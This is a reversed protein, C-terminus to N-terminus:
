FEWRNFARLGVYMVWVNTAVALILGGITGGVLWLRFWGQLRLSEAMWPHPSFQSFTRAAQDAAVLFHFPLAMLALVVVIYLTSLVLNLTGGFGAAIRASSEERFDPFRAGLGVAIGALGVCLVLCSLQHTLVISRPVRLAFDSVLILACCPAIAGAAAFLFKSWLITHRRLPLMGLLWFRRAELSIMPFIFRTTFTSLLLGVVSLNLFSVMNVWGSYHLSHSFSGINVFYVLLLGFFIFFQSWQVPDRRFLRLDKIIMLRMPRPAVCLLCNALRDVLASHPRRSTATKGALNSYATRMLLGAVWIAVQRWFLANSILLVLLLMAESWDGEAASLLGTTLWWSPLLRGESFRLRSLMDHFWGPTLLESQMETILGRILVAAALVAAAGILALLAGVGRPLYRILLLCLIAGWAVPIYVFAIVMPLLMAYYYWPVSSVVGFALLVPSGLLVFGWSSFVLAEQFKHLFVRETRAPITLLFATEPSRFLAGYILVGASLVLMLMLAVFFSGLVTHVIQDRWQPHPVASDLFMFGEAFLGFLGFWLIASLIVVISLRLRAHTLLQRIRAVVIRRRLLWFARAEKQPPLFDECQASLSCSM